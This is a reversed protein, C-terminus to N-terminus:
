GHPRTDRSLEAETAELGRRYLAALDARGASEALRVAEHYSDRSAAFLRV